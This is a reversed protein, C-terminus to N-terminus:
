AMVPSFTRVVAVPCEAHHLVGQTVSGLLAALRPPGSLGSGVVLLMVERV